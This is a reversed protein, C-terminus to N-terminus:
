VLSQLAAPANNKILLTKLFFSTEAPDKVALCAVRPNFMQKVPNDNGGPRFEDGIFTLQGKISTLAHRVTHQKSLNKSHIDITTRGTAHAVLDTGAIIFKILSLVASRYEEIIPKISLMVGGRNEIKMMPIGHNVLANLIGEIETPHIRCAENIIRRFEYAPLDPDDSSNLTYYYENVGGDAFVPIQLVEQGIPTSRLNIAKISNGTCISINVDRKILRALLSKNLISSRPMHNGRGILTDDYDFIFAESDVYEKFYTLAVARALADANHLTKNRAFDDGLVFTDASQVLSLAEDDLSSMQDDSTSDLIVRIRGEPFYKPVLLKIIDSASQGPSDKDPQRNMVMLIKASSREIAQKFGESAYTPILSSWQTGSSLIILDARSLAAEAEACLVPRAPEGSADTFFIDVFPDHIQGWSVIDGEDTVRIGSKTTAGLFLSRDDNVIVNDSIGMLGAMITAAQRLSNKNASAFGAYIINALSFDNYDIKSAVQQKFFQEVAERLLATNSVKKVLSHRDSVDAYAQLDHELEAIKELCYDKAAQTEVTFRIDLFKAWPSNPKELKLRTTQNKRVDSPGLIHGGCVKRVAGTSLGNDYANTLIKTSVGDQSSDLLGYLGRQLAISGTGGSLIVINM